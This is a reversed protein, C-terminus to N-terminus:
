CRRTLTNRCPDEDYINNGRSIVTWIGKNGHNDGDLNKVRFIENNQHRLWEANPIITKETYDFPICRKGQVSGDPFKVLAVGFSLCAEKEYKVKTV